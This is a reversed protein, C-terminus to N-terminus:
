RVIKLAGDRPAVLIEFRKFSGDEAPATQLLAKGGPRRLWWIRDGCCSVPEVEDREFPEIGAPLFVTALGARLDDRFFDETEAYARAYARIKPELEAVLGDADQALALDRLRIAYDKLAELDAFAEADRLEDSFDPPPGEPNADFLLFFVNPVDFDPDEGEAERERSERIRDRLEDHVQTELVFPGAGPVIPDGRGAIPVNVFVEAEALADRADVPAGEADVSVLPWVQVEVMNDSPLLYPNAPPAFHEAQDPDTAELAILPMDNLLVEVRCGSVIAELHHITKPTPPPPGEDEVEELPPLEEEPPLDVAPADYNPEIM